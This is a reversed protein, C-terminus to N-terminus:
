DAQLFIRDGIHVQAYGGVHFNDAKHGQGSQGKAGPIKSYSRHVNIEHWGGNMKM